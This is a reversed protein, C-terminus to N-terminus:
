EEPSEVAPVADKKAQVVKTVQWIGVIALISGTVSMANIPEHLFIIGLLTATITSVAGVSASKIVPLYIFSYNVLTNGVISCFVSMLATSVLFEPEKLANTYHSLDGGVSILAVITFVLAGAGFTVYTREWATFDAAWKRNIIRNGTSVLCALALIVIGITTVSGMESNALTILIVGVVPFFSFFVQRRTPYEKLLIAAAVLALVPVLTLALSAFSSNTYYVGSSECYYFLPMMFGIILLHRINKGKLSVLSPKFLLMISMIVFTLIFRISLQVAPIAYQQATRTLLYSFGWLFNGTLCCVMAIYYKKKDQVVSVNNSM